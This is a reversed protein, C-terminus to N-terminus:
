KVIKDLTQWTVAHYGGRAKAYVERAMETTAPNKMMAEYLPKVYKRRGVHLLFKELEPYADAYNNEVAMMLWVFLVENNGSQTFTYQADLSAMLAPSSKAPLSRLFYVWEHSTWAATQEAPVKGGGAALDAAQKVKEFRESVPAKVGAPLDEEYIWRKPNVKKDEESGEAFLNAYLFELFEETDAGKFAKEAFWKKVFPDFKDRGVADEITRLLLYGKEYAIDSVGDDPDRDELDLKLRSDKMNGDAKMDALTQSLDGYGLVALMDAYSRGYLEEMIRRELYVTFGENLWFDNWTRNTVLNGSWSHALEHAVLSTLSRDGAIITPTAFTLCPNEMGGFPFSPPLVLLDYRGWDYPGYLKEAALLMKYTDVFEYSAAKMTEPEAYVGTKDDYKHFALNGASLAMLYAPIPRKQEFIYVGDASLQQPNTASMLAMLGKPVRVTANYTFRIGPSDQVPIWTRCLIAQSQTYLFPHKGGATQKADMWQLAAADSSTEYYIRVKRTGPKLKVTLAAGLVDDPIGTSFVAPTTDQDLTIKSIVLDRVDFIVEKADPATQLTYEAYGKLIHKDFDVALDLDLHQIVAEQPRAYSHPDRTVKTEMKKEQEQPKKGSCALLTCILVVPTIAPIVKRM